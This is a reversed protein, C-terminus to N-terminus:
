KRYLPHAVHHPMLVCGEDTQKTRTPTLGDPKHGKSLRSPARTARLAQCPMTCWADSALQWVTHVSGWLRQGNNTILLTSQMGRPMGVM